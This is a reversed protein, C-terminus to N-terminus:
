LLFSGKSGKNCNFKELFLKEGLSNFILLAEEM